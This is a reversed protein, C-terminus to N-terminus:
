PGSGGCGAQPPLPSAKLGRKGRRNAGREEAMRRTRAKCLPVRAPVRKFFFNRPPFSLLSFIGGRFHSILAYLYPVVLVLSASHDRLHNLYIFLCVFLYIFLYFHTKKKKRSSFCLLVKPPFYYYYYYCYYYNFFFVVPRLESRSLRALGAGRPRSRLRPQPDPGPGCIPLGGGPVPRTETPERPLAAPRSPSGPKRSPSPPQGATRGARAPPVRQETGYGRRNSALGGPRRRM